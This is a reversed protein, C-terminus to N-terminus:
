MRFGLALADLQPRTFVSLFGAGSLLILPAILNLVNAFEFTAGVAVLIVMARAYGRDADELLNYLSLALFVLLIQGILDSLIGLRYTLAADTIRRATTTAAEPLILAGPVYLYSFVGPLGSLLYLVGAL